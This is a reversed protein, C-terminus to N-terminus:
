RAHQHPDPDVGGPAGPVADKEAVVGGDIDAIGEGADGADAFGAHEPRDVAHPDPHVRIAHLGQPDGGGVQDGRDLRLVGLCRRALDAGRGRDVPLLELHRHGGLAPQRARLVEAVDDNAGVAIPRDDAQAVDRADLQASLGIVRCGREVALGAGRQDDM